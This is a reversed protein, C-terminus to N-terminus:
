RDALPTPCDPCEGSQFLKSCNRCIKPPFFNRSPEERPKRPLFPNLLSRQKM